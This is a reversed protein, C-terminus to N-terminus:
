NMEPKIKKKGQLLFGTVIVAALILRILLLNNLFM